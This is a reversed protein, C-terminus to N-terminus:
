AVLTGAALARVAADIPGPEVEVPWIGAEQFRDRSAPDMASALVAVCDDIPDALMDHGQVTEPAAGAPGRHEAHGTARYWGQPQKQRLERGVILGGEVTLVAYYAARRLDAAITCGDGTAAAIKM